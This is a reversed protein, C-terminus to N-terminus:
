LMASSLEFCFAALGPYIQEEFLKRDRDVELVNVNNNFQEVLKAKDFGLMELYVQIQINERPFVRNFFGNVRNKIEILIKSGDPLIEVRDIRGVVVYDRKNYRGIYLQHFRDDMELKMSTKEATEAKKKDEVILKEATEAEKQTGHNTFVKSRVHERVKKKDEVNLKEDSNIISEVKTFTTKADDSGKSVFSSALSFIAQATESKAIAEEALENKTKSTFNAPSYKKWVDNFVEARSKYNNQNLIAAVDSAKIIVCDM